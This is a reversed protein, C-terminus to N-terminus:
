GRELLELIVEAGRVGSSKAPDLDFTEAVLDQQIARTADDLAPPTAFVGALDRLSTVVPGMNWFRFSPDDRWDTGHPDLFICPRPRIVFEYVQSSVDGLYVDAMNTYTMDVSALSGTDIHIHSAEFYRDPILQRPDKKAFLMIHPAFILNYRDSRHFMELIDLGWDHWSSLGDVFHPTYLVTPRDIEFIRTRPSRDNSLVDFKPYGIISSSVRPLIGIDELRRAVKKGPLLVKDYFLLREDLEYGRDGAGHFVSVFLPREGSRRRILQFSYFDPSVIVDYGLLRREHRRMVFKWRPYPRHKLTALARHWIAPELIEIRADSGPYHRELRKLLELGARSGAFLSLETKELCGLEFAIPATHFVQHIHGLFLFAVRPVDNSRSM